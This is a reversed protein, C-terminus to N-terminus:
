NKGASEHSPVKLCPERSYFGVNKFIGLFLLKALNKKYIQLQWFSIGEFNELPGKQSFAPFSNKTFDVLKEYLNLEITNIYRINKCELIWKIM